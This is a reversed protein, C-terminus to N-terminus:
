DAAPRRKLEAEAWDAWAYMKDRDSEVKASHARLEKVERQLDEVYRELKQIYEEREQAARLAQNVDITATTPPAAKPRFLSASLEALDSAGRSAALSGIAFSTLPSDSM